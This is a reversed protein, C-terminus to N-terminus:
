YKIIFIVNVNKPRTENGGYNETTTHFYESFSSAHSSINQVGSGGNQTKIGHSHDIVEDSQQSGVKDGINGGPNSAARESADPDKGAGNDVGRLFMGRMDPLNFTTTGNGGGWANGITSYLNSYLQRSVESGDCNLWGIPILEGAFPLISGVPNLGTSEYEPHSHPIPIFESPIENLSNYNGDFDDSADKDWGNFASEDGEIDNDSYHKLDTIEAETHNHSAPNFAVPINQLEDYEGSFGDASKEAYLAYPVSLLQSTGFDTGNVNIKLFYPGESWDILTFDEPKVSGIEINFLGGDNISTLHMESFVEQGNINGKLIGIVVEVTSKKYIGLSGIDDKLVAQYNFTHPVQCYCFTILFIGFIILITRKM